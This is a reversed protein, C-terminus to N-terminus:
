AEAEGKAFPDRKEIKAYLYQGIVKCSVMVPLALIGGILGFEHVGVLVGLLVVFPPLELVHGQVNPTILSDDILTVVWYGLAVVGAFLLNPMGVFRTSGYFLAIIVSPIAALVPGLTPVIEFIGALLGLGLPHPLGLIWALLTVMVGVGLMVLSQGVVYSKWVTGLRKLLASWERLHADPVWKDIGKTIWSVDVILYMTFFVTFLTTSLLSITDFVIELVHSIRNALLAIAEEPSEQFLEAFSRDLSDYIQDALPSLDVTTGGINVATMQSLTDALGEAVQALSNALKDALGDLSFVLIPVMLVVLLALLLLIVVTVGLALWRPFRLRNQLFAALPRLLGAVIAAIVVQGWFPRTLVLIVIPALALVVIAIIRAPRNWTTRGAETQADQTM